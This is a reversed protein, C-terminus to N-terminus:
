EAAKATDAPYEGNLVRFAENQRASDNVDRLPIPGKNLRLRKEVQPWEGAAESEMVTQRDILVVDVSPKLSCGGFMLLPLVWAVDRCRIM